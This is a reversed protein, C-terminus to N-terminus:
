TNYVVLGSVMKFNLLVPFVQFHLFIFGAKFKEHVAFVSKIVTTNVSAKLDGKSCPILSRSM